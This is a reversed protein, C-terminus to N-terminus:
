KREGEVNGPLHGLYPMEDVFNHGCRAALTAKELTRDAFLSGSFDSIMPIDNFEGPFVSLDMQGWLITITM